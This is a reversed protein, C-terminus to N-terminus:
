VLAPHVLRKFGTQAIMLLIRDFDAGDLVQVAPGVPLQGFLRCIGALRIRLGDLEGDGDRGVSLLDDSVRNMIGPLWYFSSTYPCTGEGAGGRVRGRGCIGLSVPGHRQECVAPEESCPDSARDTESRFSM